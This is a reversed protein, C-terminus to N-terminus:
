SSYFKLVPPSINLYINQRVTSDACLTRRCFECPSNHYFYSDKRKLIWIVLTYLPSCSANSLLCMLQGIVWIIHWRKCLKCTVISQIHSTLMRQFTRLGPHSHKLTRGRVALDPPYCGVHLESRRQPARWFQGQSFTLCTSGSAKVGGSIQDGQAM